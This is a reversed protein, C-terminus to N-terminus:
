KEEGAAGIERLRTEVATLEERLSEAQGKLLALEEEKNPVWANSFARGNRIWGPMGTAYFM